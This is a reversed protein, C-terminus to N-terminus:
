EGQNTIDKQKRRRASRARWKRKKRQREWIKWEVDCKFYDEWHDWPKFLLFLEQSLNMDKQKGKSFFWLFAWSCHRLSLAKLTGVNWNLNQRLPNGDLKQTIYGQLCCGFAQAESAWMSASVSNRAKVKNRQPQKLFQLLWGILPRNSEHARETISQVGCKMIDSFIYLYANFFLFLVFWHIINIHSTAM